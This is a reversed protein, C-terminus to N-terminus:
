RASGTKSRSRPGNARGGDASPKKAGKSRSGTAALSQELAALLDAEPTAPEPEPAVITEGRAKREILALLAERYTDRYRSPQFRGRMQGVLAKAMDLERKGPKTQPQPIELDSPAVLEDAFRMTHVGILDDLARVAVLQARNHFVWRAIGVRGSRRLAAQLVRYPEDAENGPGLYYSHDYYLPDIEEGSVFHEIAITRAGSGDAASVEDKSLVVYTGSRAEFGKVIESYPVEKNEKVCVRRHQVAAGDSAHRENFHVAKSETAAYLKVPVRVMGFVVTGNWM